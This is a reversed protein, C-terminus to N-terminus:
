RSVPVPKVSLILGATGYESGIYVLKDGDTKFELMFSDKEGVRRLNLMLNGNNLTTWEGTDLAPSNNDLNNTVMKAKREPTLSLSIVSGASNPSHVSAQYYAETSITFAGGQQESNTQGGPVVTLVPNTETSAPQAPNVCAIATLFAAAITIIIMRM